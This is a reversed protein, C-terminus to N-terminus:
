SDHITSTRIINTLSPELKMIVKRFSVHYDKSIFPSLYIEQILKDINVKIRIGANEDQRVLTEPPLITPQGYTVLRVEDEYSYPEGKTTILKHVNIEDKIFNTYTVNGFFIERPSNVPGFSNIADILGKTNTKIAIGARGGGLYIKWLAYSEVPKKVWCNVFALKRLSGIRDDLYLKELATSNKSSDTPVIKSRLEELNAEPIKAENKDTFKSISSFYLSKSMLLDLFKEFSMYRWLTANWPPTEYNQNKVYM